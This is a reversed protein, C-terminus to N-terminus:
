NPLEQMAAAFLLQEYEDLLPIIHKKYIERCYQRANDKTKSEIDPINKELSRITDIPFGFESLYEGVSSKVGTEYFRAVSSLSFGDINRGNLNAVYCYVSDFLSILQPIKHELIDKQIKFASLYASDVSTKKQKAQKLQYSLLGKLGEKQYSYAVGSYFTETAEKLIGAISYVQLLKKIYYGRLFTERISSKSHLLPDFMELLESKTHLCQALQEQIEMPILRNKEFTERNILYNKQICRRARQSELNKESLDESFANDLDINSISKKGYIVFDLHANDAELIHEQEKNMLYVRGIFSHYYRGARGSINKIDFTTLSARGKSSNILVMNRAETNVGEVITSTCFLIDIPGRNFQRLIENQIYRPLRGHHVAVNKKLAKYLSWDNISDAINYTHRIHELFKIYRSNTSHNDAHNTIYQKVYQITKSPQMCYLMTKGYNNQQIYQIVREIKDQVRANSPLTLTSSTIDPLGGHKEQIEKKWAQIYIRITPEFLIEKISIQNTSLFTRMGFGFNKQSLNPGALYYEPVSKALLYLAIRFTKARADDLFSVTAIPAEDKTESITDERDENAVATAFDEDEKYMEDFFFFDLKIDPYLAILQLAREPTFIFINKAHIDIDDSVTNLIAYDLEKSRVFEKMDSVNERLLAITPFVLLINFYRDRNLYLIERMLYTKGYSTPASVLLRKVKLAQFFDVVEKQSKDLINKEYVNSRYYNKIVDNQLDPLVASATYPEETFHNQVNYGFMRMKQAALYLLEKILPDQSIKSNDSYYCILDRLHEKSKPDTENYHNIAHVLKNVYDMM